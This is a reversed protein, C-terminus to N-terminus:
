GYHRKRHCNPCLAIVNEITDSGGDKLTVIHHVELYPKGNKASTFPAPKQCDQCIGEAKRLAYATIKPDRVFQYSFVERQEPNENGDPVEISDEAVLEEVESDFISELEDETTSFIEEGNVWGLIRNLKVNKRRICKRDIAANIIGNLTSKKRIEYTPGMGWYRGTEMILDRGGEIPRDFLLSHSSPCSYHFTLGLSEATNGLGVRKSEGLYM